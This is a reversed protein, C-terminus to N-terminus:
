FGGTPNGPKSHLTTEGSLPPLTLYIFRYSGGYLGVKVIPKSGPDLFVGLTAAFFSIKYLRAKEDNVEL